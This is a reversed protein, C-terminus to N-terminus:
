VLDPMGSISEGNVAVVADGVKVGAKAGPGNADIGDATLKGNQEIWWVGDSPVQYDREKQFNIWALVLATLTVLGLVVTTFRVQFDRDMPRAAAHSASSFISKRQKQVNVAM